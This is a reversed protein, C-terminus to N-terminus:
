RCSLLGQVVEDLTPRTTIIEGFGHERASLAIRPHTVLAKTHHFCGGPLLVSLHRVSESSSLLWISAADLSRQALTQQAATWVPVERGYAVGIDVHSGAARCREIFDDRGSRGDPSVGRLVLLRHGPRVQSAVVAWLADADFQAADRAPQDIRTPAVGRAHLAAATGPGPAWCRTAPSAVAFAHAHAVAQPSVWLMASYSGASALLAQLALQDSVPRIAMLPLAAADVGRGRLAHM